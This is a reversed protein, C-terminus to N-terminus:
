LCIRDAAGKESEIGRPCAAELEVVLVLEECHYLTTKARQGSEIPYHLAQNLLVEWKSVVARQSKGFDCFTSKCSVCTAALGFARAREAANL